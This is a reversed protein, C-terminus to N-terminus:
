FPTKKNQFFFILFIFFLKLFQLKIELFIRLFRFFYFAFLAWVEERLCDWGSKEFEGCFRFVARRREREGRSLPCRQWRETPTPLAADLKM